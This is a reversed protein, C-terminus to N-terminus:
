INKEKIDDYLSIDDIKSKLYLPAEKSLLINRLFLIFEDLIKVLNKGSTDYNDIISFINEINNEILNNYLNYLQVQPVTGNIEHIVDLTINNEEYAITQEFLSFADRM